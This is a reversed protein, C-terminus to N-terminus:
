QFMENITKYLLKVNIPKTLYENMGADLAKQRDNDMTNATMAIIIVSQSDSRSLSRIQRSAELGDIEPIRIDMLIIDYYRIGSTEFMYVAEKGDRAIDVSLGAKKLLAEAIEASLEDDEALLVKKGEFNYKGSNYINEKESLKKLPMMEMDIEFFFESGKGVESEVDLEGGMLKVLNSSIALGLGTGDHQQSLNNEAQEFPRFIKELNEESIGAGTDKVSFRM